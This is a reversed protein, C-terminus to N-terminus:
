VNWRERAKLRNYIDVLWKEQRHTLRRGGDFNGAIDHIFERENSSVRGKDMRQFVFAWRDFQESLSLKPEEMHFKQEPQPAERYVEKYRIIVQPEQGLSKALDHLDMGAAKLTRQIARVTAVVEGDHDTALRPILKALRERTEASPGGHSM